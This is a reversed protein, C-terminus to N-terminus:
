DKMVESLIDMKAIERIKEILDEQKPVTPSKWNRAYLIRAGMIIYIVIYDKSKDINEPIMSLLFLEPTLPVKCLLIQELM